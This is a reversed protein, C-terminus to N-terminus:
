LIEIAISPLNHWLTRSLNNLKSVRTRLEENLKFFFNFFNDLTRRHSLSSRHARVNPNTTTYHFSSWCLLLVALLSKNRGRGLEIIQGYHPDNDYHKDEFLIIRISPQFRHDSGVLFPPPQIVVVDIPNRERGGNLIVSTAWCSSSQVNIHNRNNEIMVLGRTDGDGKRRPSGPPAEGCGLGGTISTILPFIIVRWFMSEAFDTRWEEHRKAQKKTEFRIYAKERM